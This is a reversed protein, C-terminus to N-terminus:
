KVDLSAKCYFQADQARAVLEIRDQACLTNLATQLQLAAECADGAETTMDAIRLSIDTRLKADTAIASAKYYADLAGATDQRSSYVNGLLSYAHAATSRLSSANDGASVYNAIVTNLLAEATNLLEDQGINLLDHEIVKAQARSHAVRLAINANVPQIRASLAKSYYGEGRKLFQQIDNTNPTSNLAWQSMISGLGVYASAFEPEIDVAMLYNAEAQKLKEPVVDGCDSSSARMYANGLMYHLMAQGRTDQMADSSLVAEFVSAANLYNKYDDRAYYEFGRGLSVVANARDLLEQRFEDLAISDSTKNITHAFAGFDYSGILEPAHKFYGPAVYFQPAVAITNDHCDVTGYMVVDVDHTTAFKAMWNEGAQAPTPTGFDVQEPKWIVIGSTTALTSSPLRGPSKLRSDAMEAMSVSLNQAFQKCTTNDAQTSAFPLIVVDLNFSSGKGLPKVKPATM